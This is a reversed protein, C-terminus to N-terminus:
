GVNMGSKEFVDAESLAMMSLAATSCRKQPVSGAGALRYETVM